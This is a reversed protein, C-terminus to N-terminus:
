PIIKRIRSFRDEDALMPGESAPMRQANLQDVYDKYEERKALIDQAYKKAEKSKYGKAKPSGQNYSRLFEEESKPHWFRKIADYYNLGAIVNEKWYKPNSMDEFKLNKLAGTKDLKQADEFAKSRVQTLGRAGKGGGKKNFAAPNFSSEKNIHAMVLSPDLNRRTAEDVIFQKIEDASPMQVPALQKVQMTQKQPRAKTSPEMNLSKRVSQFRPEDTITPAKYQKSEVEEPEQQPQTPKKIPRVTAAEASPMVMQMVPNIARLLEEPLIKTHDLYPSQAIQTDDEDEDYQDSNQNLIKQWDM